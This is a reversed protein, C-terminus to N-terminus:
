ALYGSTVRSFTKIAEFLRVSNKGAPQSVLWKCDADFFLGSLGLLWWLGVVKLKKSESKPIATFILWAPKGKSTDAPSWAKM